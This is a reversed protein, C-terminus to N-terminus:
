KKEEEKKTPNYRDNLYKTVEETINYSQDACVVTGIGAANSTLIMQYKGVEANYQRVLAVITDTVAKTREAELQMLEVQLKQNLEQLEQQLKLIREQERQAREQSLFANSEVKRQFEKMESELNRGKTNFTAQRNEMERMLEEQVDTYYKYNAMLSDLEIYAIPMRAIASSDGSVMAAAGSNNNSTGNCSALGLLAVILAAATYITKKIM